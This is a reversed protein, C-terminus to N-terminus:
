PCVRPEMGGGGETSGVILVNSGFLGESIMLDM